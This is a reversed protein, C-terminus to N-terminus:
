DGSGTVVADCESELRALIDPAVPTGANPKRFRLVKGVHHNQCLFEDVANLFLDFNPKKNDLLGVTKGSLDSVRQAIDLKKPERDGLPSFVEIWGRPLSQKATGTSRDM